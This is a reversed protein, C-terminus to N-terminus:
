GETATTEVSAQPCYSTVVQSANASGTMIPPLGGAASGGLGPTLTIPQQSTLNFQSLYLQSPATQPLQYPRVADEFASM